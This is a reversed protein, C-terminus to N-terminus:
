IVTPGGRAGRRRRNRTRYAISVRAMAAVVQLTVM